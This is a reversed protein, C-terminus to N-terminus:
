LRIWIGRFDLSTKVPKLWTGLSTPCVASLVLERLTQLPWGTVSHAQNLNTNKEL